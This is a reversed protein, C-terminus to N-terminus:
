ARLGLVARASLALEVHLAGWAGAASTWFPFPCALRKGRERSGEGAIAPVSRPTLGSNTRALFAYHDFDGGVGAPHSYRGHYRSVRCVRAAVDGALGFWTIGVCSRRSSIIRRWPTFCARGSRLPGDPLRGVFLAFDRYHCRARRSPNEQLRIHMGPSLQM